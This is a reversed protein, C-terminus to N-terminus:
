FHEEQAMEQKLVHDSDLQASEVAHELFIATVINMAAFVMFTIYAIFV